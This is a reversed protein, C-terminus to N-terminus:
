DKPPRRAARRGILVGAIGLSLLMLTGAEPLM